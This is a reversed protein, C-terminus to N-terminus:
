LMRALARSAASRPREVAPSGCAAASHLTPQAKLHLRAADSCSNVNPILVVLQLQIFHQNNKSTFSVQALVLILAQFSFSSSCSFSANTTRQFPPASRRFLFQRM